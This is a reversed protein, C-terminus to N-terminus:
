INANNQQAIKILLTQKIEENEAMKHCTYCLTILNNNDLRRTWKNAISHIHHVELGKFVYKDNLLCYQCLFKDRRKIEERKKKWLHSSRFRTIYNPEKTRRIKPKNGCVFGRKHIGNCYSCSVLM